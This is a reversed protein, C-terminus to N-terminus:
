KENETKRCWDITKQIGDAFTIRPIFGTDETLESIDACLYMVQGERYPLEGIGAEAGENVSARMKEIFEYLPCAIGSGIPYIAGDKGNLAILYLAKAADESYLYDWQQEGKSFGPKEGRLMQRIASTIMTMEGDYPGYISLIRSWEHRIGLKRCELRSMQGACLKAIGYGMEPKTPTEATIKGETRGYEAQSGAGIFVKCNLRQAMHVADLTYQVNKLQLAMDDRQQGITGMWALHFCMDFSGVQERSIKDLEDLPCQLIQLQEHERLRNLRNSDPRVIVLVEIKHGLLEKILAMGIAGTAGTIIARELYKERMEHCQM